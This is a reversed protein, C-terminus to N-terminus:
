REKRVAEVSITATADGYATRIRMSGFDRDLFALDDSTFVPQRLKFGSLSLSYTLRQQSMAPTVSITGGFVLARHCTRMIHFLAWRVVESDIEKLAEPIALALPFWRAVRSVSSQTSQLSLRIHPRPGYAMSASYGLYALLDNWSQEVIATADSRRLSKQNTSDSQPEGLLASVSSREVLVVGRSIVAQQAFFGSRIQWLGAALGQTDIEWTWYPYEGPPRTGFGLNREIQDVGHILECEPDVRQKLLTLFEFEERPLLLVM